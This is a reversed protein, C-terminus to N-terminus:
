PQVQRTVDNARVQLRRRGREVARDIFGAPAQQSHGANLYVVYPVNTGQTIELAQENETHVADAAKAEPNSMVIDTASWAGWSARARGTDVPMDIKIERILEADTKRLVNWLQKRVRKPMAQLNKVHAVLEKTDIDVRLGDM